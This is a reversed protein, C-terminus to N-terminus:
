LNDVAYQAEEPTFKEGYESVLQDYIGAKSMHLTKSYSKAQRLANRGQEPVAEDAPQSDASSSSTGTSDDGLGTGIGAPVVLIILWVWWRKYWPKAQKAPQQAPAVPAGGPYNAGPHVPTQSPQTM